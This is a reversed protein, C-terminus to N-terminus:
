VCVCVCFWREGGGDEERECVCICQFMRVYLCVCVGGGTETFNMRVGRALLRCSIPVCLVPGRFLSHLTEVLRLLPQRRIVNAVHGRPVALDLILYSNGLVM